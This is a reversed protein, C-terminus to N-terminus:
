RERGDCRLCSRGRQRQADRRWDNDDGCGGCPSAPLLTIILCLAMAIALIRKRM